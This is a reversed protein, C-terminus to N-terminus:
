PLPLLEGELANGQITLLGMSRRSGGRPQSPSGPNLLLIDGEEDLFPVHTHGFLAAECELERARLNIRQLNLKVGYSHGHCLFIRKGGLEVVRERPGASLADMNGCVAVVPKGGTAFSKADMYYDGLHIWADVAGAARICAAIAWADGHTDSVVAIRM